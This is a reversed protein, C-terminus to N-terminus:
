YRGIAGAQAISTLVAALAALSITLTILRAKM